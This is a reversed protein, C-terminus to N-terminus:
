RTRIGVDELVYIQGYLDTVNIFLRLAGALESCGLEEELLGMAVDLGRREYDAIWLLEAKAYGRQISPDVAKGARSFFEPFNVSNLSAEEADRKVSGLDNYMRCLSALHRCTDEALYAARASSLIGGHAQLKRPSSAHLLCNFFIFSFPCSTHDASTSRVWHYFTRGPERFQVYPTAGSPEKGNIQVHIGNQQKPQRQSSLRHNDEAQTTHALLFTQLDSALRTRLGEPSSLIAPHHLIHTVFRYLVNRVDKLSPPKDQSDYSEGNTTTSQEYNRHTVKPGGSDQSVSDVGNQVNPNENAFIEEIIKRITDLNGEFHGEVVEEMYADAHFNLISLVMMEYLVSLSVSHGNLEACVLLALPIIFLYKEKGKGTRPFIDLPQRQLARMAFSAQIECARLAYPDIDSLLPTHALLSGSKRMGLLLKDPILFDTCGSSTAQEPQVTSPLPALAASLCYAESLLDSKYTVKEIWLYHGKGWERRNAHLFSKGLALAAIIKGRELQQVCPLRVISSLALVGYATVECVGGWSGDNQQTRLIRMLVHLSVMPIEELLPITTVWKENVSGRFVENTLFRTAKVIQALHQARDERLLLLILVNCNASFSPNREGLYTIFNDKSEFAEILGDVSETQGLYYLTKLGRATDDADSLTGPSFGLVGRQVRLREQLLDCFASTESKGIPVGASALTSIVWSVEFISTPWACPVSGRDLNNPRHLVTRLYTEAEDDWSSSNMLYAATSAPSAMM